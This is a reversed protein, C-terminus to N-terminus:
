CMKRMLKTNRTRELLCRISSTTNIHKGQKIGWRNINNSKTFISMISYTFHFKVTIKILMENIALHTLCRKMHMNAMQTKEETLHRKSM